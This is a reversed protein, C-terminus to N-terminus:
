NNKDDAFKAWCMGVAAAAPVAEDAKDSEEPKTEEKDAKKTEVEEKKGKLRDLM